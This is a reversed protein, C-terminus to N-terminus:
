NWEFDSIAGCDNKEQLNYYCQDLYRINHWGKFLDEMSVNYKPSGYVRSYVSKFKESNCRYGRRLMENIVLTAYSHLHEPEYDMIRNVLVHNPSGKMEINRMIGCLERWQGLLQNKPLVPILYKHWLRM